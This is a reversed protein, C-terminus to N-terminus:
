YDYYYEDPTEAYGIQSRQTKGAYERKQRKLMEKNANAADSMNTIERGEFYGHLLKGDLTVTLSVRGFMTDYVYAVAFESELEELEEGSAIEKPYFSQEEFTDINRMVREVLNETKITAEEIMRERKEINDKAAPLPPETEHWPDEVEKGCYKLIEKWNM